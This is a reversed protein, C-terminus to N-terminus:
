LPAPDDPQGHEGGRLGDYVLGVRGDDAELQILVADAQPWPYALSPHRWRDDDGRWWGRAVLEGAEYERKARASAPAQKVRAM